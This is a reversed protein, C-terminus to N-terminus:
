KFYIATLQTFDIDTVQHFADFFSDADRFTDGQSSDAYRKLAAFYAEDGVADRLAQQFTV